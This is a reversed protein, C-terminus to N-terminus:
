NETRMFFWGSRVTTGHHHRGGGGVKLRHGAAVKEAAGAMPDAHRCQSGQQRPVQGSDLGILVVRARAANEPSRMKGGFGFPDNVEEHAPPGTLDIEKIVLGQEIFQIALIQRVTDTLTLPEGPHRSILGPQRKCARDELEVAVAVAPSFETFQKGKGRGHRVIEAEHFAHERLGDIVIRRDRKKM